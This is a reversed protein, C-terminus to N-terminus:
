RPFAGRKAICAARIVEMVGDLNDLVENNWFRLVTFGNEELVHDRELDGSEEHSSGHGAPGPWM